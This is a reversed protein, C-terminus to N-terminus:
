CGNNKKLMKNKSIPVIKISFRIIHTLNMQLYEDPKYNFLISSM